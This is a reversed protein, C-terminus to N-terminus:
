FKPSQNKNWREVPILEKARLFKAIEWALVGNGSENIHKLDDPLDFMPNALSGSVDLSVLQTDLCAKHLEEVETVLAFAAGHASATAHMEAVIREGLQHLEQVFAKDELNKEDESLQNRGDFQGPRSLNVVARRLISYAESHKVLWRHSTRFLGASSEPIDIPSDSLILEGDVMSFRPKQKGFRQTHM